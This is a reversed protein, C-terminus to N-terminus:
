IFKNCVYHTQGEREECRKYPWKKMSSPITKYSPNVTVVARTVISHYNISTEKNKSCNNYM